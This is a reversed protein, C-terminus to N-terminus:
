REVKWTRWKVIHDIHTRSVGYIAAMQDITSEGRRYARRIDCVQDWNLKYKQRHKVM